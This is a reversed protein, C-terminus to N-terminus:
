TELYVMPTSASSSVRSPRLVMTDEGERDLRKARIRCHEAAGWRGFNLEINHVMEQPTSISARRGGDGTEKYHSPCSQCSIFDQHFTSMRNIKWGRCSERPPNGMARLSVKVMGTADNWNSFELTNVRTRQYKGTWRRRPPCCVRWSPITPRYFRWESRRVRCCRVRRPLHRPVHEMVGFADMDRIPMADISENRNRIESWGTPCCWRREYICGCTFHHVKGVDYSFSFSSIFQHDILESKRTSKVCDWEWIGFCRVCLNSNSIM